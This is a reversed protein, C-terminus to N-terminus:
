AARDNRSVDAAPVTRPRGATITMLSVETGIEASVDDMQRYSVGM